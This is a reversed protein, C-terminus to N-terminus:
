SGGPQDKRSVSDLVKRVEVALAEPTFPKGLFNVGKDLRSGDAIADQPHGSMYLVALGPLTDLFVKALENGRMGGPLVIDTLLLDPPSEMEELVELAEPGSGAVVVRYGLEGLVRAVLRRLPAEDEVVLVTEDGGRPAGATPAEEPPQAPGAVRPLYVRFTTGEDVESYVVVHGGSQKVIGYVTSLGLGTGEGPRKTTFFPEFARQMTEPSMGVGTDSVSLLAYAGPELEPYARCYEENLEISGTALTLWGGDPMAECANTVLCVVVQEFQKADVEVCCSHSERVIALEIGNGVLSRLKEEMGAVLESLAVVRPRLTQHRAFASIQGTLDAAREAAARIEEVDKRLSSHDQVEKSALILNGYGIIATLLNNFDHAIGGALVAISAMKDANALQEEIKKQETIDRFVLVAGAM